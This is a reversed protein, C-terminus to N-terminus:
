KIITGNNEDGKYLNNNNIDKIIERLAHVSCNYSGYDRHNKWQAEVSELKKLKEALDSITYIKNLYAQKYISYFQEYTILPRNSIEGYISYLSM